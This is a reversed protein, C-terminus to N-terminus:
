RTTPSWSSFLHDDRSPPVDFRAAGSLTQVFAVIQWAQQENLKGRFSPMGNPRGELIASFINEPEGGYIWESDMLAPGINGGGHGHCGSCNYWDFLRKGESIAQANGLYPSPVSEPAAAGGPHLPSATEGTVPPADDFRRAERECGALALVCTALLVVAGVRDAPCPSCM